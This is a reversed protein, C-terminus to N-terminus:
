KGLFLPILNLKKSYSQLLKGVQEQDQNKILNGLPRVDSNWGGNEEDRTVIDIFLPQCMFLQFNEFMRQNRVM